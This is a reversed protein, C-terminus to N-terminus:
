SNESISKGTVAEYVDVVDELSNIWRFGVAVYKGQRMEAYGIYHTYENSLQLQTNYFLCVSNRVWYNMGEFLPFECKGNDHFRLAKLKNPTIEM